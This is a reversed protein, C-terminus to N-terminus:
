RLNGADNIFVVIEPNESKQPEAFTSSTPMNVKINSACIQSTREATDAPVEEVYQDM